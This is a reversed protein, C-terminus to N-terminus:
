PVLGSPGPQGLFMNKLIFLDSTNVIGDGNLDTHPDTTLYNSKMYFLDLVNVTLNGDFDPDCYNGFGDGDTDRQARNPVLTCNDNTNAVGDGDRDLPDFPGVQGNLAVRIGSEPFEVWGGGLDRYELYNNLPIKSKTLDPALPMWGYDVVGFDGLGGFFVVYDGADLTINANTVVDSSTLGAFSNTQYFLLSAPDFDPGITPLADASDISVIGTFFSGSGGVNATISDLQTRSEISFRVGLYSDSGVLVWGGSAYNSDEPTFTEIIVDAHALGSFYLLYLIFFKKM